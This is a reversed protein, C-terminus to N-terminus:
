QVIDLRQLLEVPDYDADRFWHVCLMFRCAEVVAESSDAFGRKLLTVRQQPQLHR